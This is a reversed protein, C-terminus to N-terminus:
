RTASPWATAAARSPSRSRADPRRGDRDRDDHPRPEDGRGDAHARVQVLALGLRQPHPLPVQAARGEHDAVARGNVLIVDGQVSSQSNDDYILQGDTASSRTASPSRRRRVPQGARGPHALAASWTTMCSTSRRRPGHLRELGDRPRRPRPVLADARGPHQPLPLGQVRGAVTTDSAYGDYEPLSASGHLHVSTVPEYKLTPHYKGALGNVHRVITRVGQEVHINPGPTEGNYGWIRTLPYDQKKGGPVNLVNLQSERMVFDYFDVDPRRLPTKVAPPQVYM